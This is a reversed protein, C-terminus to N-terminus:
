FNPPEWRVHGTPDVFRSRGAVNARDDRPVIPFCTAVPGAARSSENLVRKVIPFQQYIQPVPVLSRPTKGKEAPMAVPHTETALLQSM